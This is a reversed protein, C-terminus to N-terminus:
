ENGKLAKLEEEYKAILAQQRAIKAQLKTQPDNIAKERREKCKAIIAEITKREEDTAYELLKKGNGSPALKRPEHPEKTTLEYMDGEKALLAMGILRRNTATVVEEPLHLYNDTTKKNLAIIEVDGNDSMKVLEYGHKAQANKQIYYKMNKNGEPSDLTSSLM